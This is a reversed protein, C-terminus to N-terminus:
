VLQNSILYIKQLDNYTLFLWRRKNEAILRIHETYSKIFISNHMFSCIPPNRNTSRNTISNWCFRLLKMAGDTDGLCFLFLTFTDFDGKLNFLFFYFIFTQITHILDSIHFVLFFFAKNTRHACLITM